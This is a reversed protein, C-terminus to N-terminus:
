KMTYINNFMPAAAGARSMEVMQGRRIAEVHGDAFTAHVMGNYCDAELPINSENSFWLFGGGRRMSAKDNDPSYSDRLLMLKSLNGDAAISGLSVPRRGDQSTPMAGYRNVAYNPYGWPVIASPYKTPNGIVLVAGDKDGWRPWFRPSFFAMGNSMYGKWCLTKPYHSYVSGVPSEYDTCYPLRGNADNAYALLARVIARHNSANQTALASNKVQQYGGLAMALLVAVIVIALLLELLTFGRLGRRLALTCLLHPSFKVTM